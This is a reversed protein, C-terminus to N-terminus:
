GPLGHGAGRGVTVPWDEVRVASVDFHDEIWQRVQEEM